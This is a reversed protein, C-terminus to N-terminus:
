EDLVEVKTVNSDNRKFHVRLLGNKYTTKTVEYLNPIPIQSIISKYSLGKYKYKVEEDDKSAQITLIGPSMTVTLDSKDFGAFSLECIIDDEETIVNFPFNFTKKIMNHLDVYNDFFNLLDSTM